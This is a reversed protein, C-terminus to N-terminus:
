VHEARRNKKDSIFAVIGLFVSVATFFWFTGPMIYNRLFHYFVIDSVPILNAAIILIGFCVMLWKRGTKRKFEFTEASLFLLFSIRVFAGTVWQYISLFDLHEVFRGLSVLGWQEFAPYKQRSAEIPGFETLAGILPGLVLWSLIVTNISFFKLSISGKIKQQIFIVAIIEVLGSLPFIVGKLPPAFGHELVPLLLQYNKFQINAFAVFFGFVIVAFLVFGNLIAITQMNTLALTLCLFTFLIVLMYSPTIPLYSVKTWSIFEGMTVAALLILFLSIAASFIFAPIRGIEQKLWIFINKGKTKKNIYLLLLSWVGIIVGAILVSIWSDRKAAALLHPIVTVHNKLGLATMLILSLQLPSITDNNKMSYGGTWENRTPNAFKRSIIFLCGRMETFVM